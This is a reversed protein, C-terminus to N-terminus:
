TEVEKEAPYFAKLHELKKLAKGSSIVERGVEMGDRLNEVTEYAYIRLAANLLAAERFHDTREGSLIEETIRASDVPLNPMEFSERSEPIGYEATAIDYDSLKGNSWEVVKTYGSRIDDSGELGQFLVIREFSQTESRVLTDIVRKAFKLHYFSGIHISANAPNALPELTNLFSRVGLQNRYQLLEHYAPNFEPQYFYGFGASELMQKSAAPSLATEINLASLVDKYTAGFKTPVKESSHVVIPVGAAAAILGAAVGLLATRRKGDYAAGCDVPSIHPVTVNTAYSRATDLFGSLEEATNAKWRNAVLFAGITTPHVEGELIGSITTGAQERTMDQASKPGTGMQAMLHKVTSTDGRTM